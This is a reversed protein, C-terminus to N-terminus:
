SALGNYRTLYQIKMVPAIVIPTYKSFTLLNRITISNIQFCIDQPYYYATSLVVNLSAEPPSLQYFKAAMAKPGVLFSTASNNPGRDFRFQSDM